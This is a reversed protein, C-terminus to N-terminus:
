PRDGYIGGPLGSPRPRVFSTGGASSRGDHSAGAGAPPLAGSMGLLHPWDFFSPDQNNVTHGPWGSTAGHTPRIACETQARSGPGTVCLSTKPTSTRRWLKRARTGARHHGHSNPCRWPAPRPLLPDQSSHDHSWARIWCSLELGGGPPRFRIPRESSTCQVTKRLAGGRPACLVSRPGGLTNPARGNRRLTCHAILMHGGERAAKTVVEDLRSLPSKAWPFAPRPKTEPQAFADYKETWYAPFRHTAPTAFADRVPAIGQRGCAEVVLDPVV